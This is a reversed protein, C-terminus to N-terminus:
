SVPSLSHCQSPQVSIFCASLAYATAAAFPRVNIACSDLM